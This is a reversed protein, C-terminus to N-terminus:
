VKEWVYIVNNEYSLSRSYLWPFKYEKHSLELIPKLKHVSENGIMIYKNVNEIVFNEDVGYANGGRHSQEEEYRHTIWSGIVVSPKYFDIAKVADLEIIDDPYNTVPQGIIKYYMAIEPKRMLCADTIPVNLERGIAGNGAGIEITKNLIIHPKLWEILETTPLCYIGKHHCWVILHEIPINSYFSSNLIKLNGTEDLLDKDLYMVNYQPLINANM